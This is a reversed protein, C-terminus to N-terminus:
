CGIVLRCITEPKKTPDVFVTVTVPRTLDPNLVWTTNGQNETSESHEHDGVLVVEPAGDGDIDAIVPPSYTFESRDGTGWGQRSLALDHYAEVGTVWADAFSPDTPFSTGDGSWVGFGIADYTSVVDLVGDGDLDGAGINQNFGGYDICDGTPAACDGVQPWGTALSGDLEFVATAPGDAQKTILVEIAGDGDVDAAAVSRVEADGFARSWGPLLEGEHDYVAVNYGADDPHASVAIETGGDGDLDGVAASPWMRVTGHEPSSSASSAWATQWLPTGDGRYVYLVSHRLANLQKGEPTLVHIRRVRGRGAGLNKQAPETYRLVEDGCHLEHDFASRLLQPYPGREYTVFEFGADRLAVLENPFAGARDFVLMVRTREAGAFALGDRLRRAIPRALSTLSDHNPSPERLM